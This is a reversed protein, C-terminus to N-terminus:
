LLQAISEQTGSGPRLEASRRAPLQGPLECRCQRRHARRSANFAAATPDIGDYGQVPGTNMSVTDNRAGLLTTWARSWRREWEAFTGLRTRTADNLNVYDFMMGIPAGPWRDDLSQAHLENGVRLEDQASATIDAKVRYGFDRARERTPMQGMSTIDV